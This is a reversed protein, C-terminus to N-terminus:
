KEELIKNLRKLFNDESFYEARKSFNDSDMKNTEIKELIEKLKKSGEEINSFGYGYEGNNLVETYAGSDKQVLVLCGAALAEILTLTMSIKKQSDILIKSEFLIKNLEESTPSEIIKVKNSIHLHNIM